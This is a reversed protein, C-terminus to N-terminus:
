ETGYLVKLVPDLNDNVIDDMADYRNAFELPEKAKGYTNVAKAVAKEATTANPNGALAIFRKIKGVIPLAGVGELMLTMEGIDGKKYDTYARWADDYSAAGTVDVFELMNEWLPDGDSMERSLTLFNGLDNGYASGPGYGEPRNPPATATTDWNIYESLQRPIVVPPPAVPKASGAYGYDQGGSLLADAMKETVM